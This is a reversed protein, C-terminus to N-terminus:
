KNVEFLQQWDTIEYLFCCEANVYTLANGNDNKRRRKYWVPTRSKEIALDKTCEWHGWVDGSSLRKIVAYAEVKGGYSYYVLDGVHLDKITLGSNDAM